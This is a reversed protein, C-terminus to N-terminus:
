HIILKQNIITQTNVGRASIIYTGPILRNSFIFEYIAGDIATNIQQKVLTLGSIDYVSLEILEDDFSNFQITTKTEAPNPYIILSPAAKKHKFNVAIIKSYVFSGDLDVQKLRYYSLGKIPNFDTLSYHLEESSNGAASTEELFDFVLDNGAREIEFHSSNIESSTTWNLLVEKKTKTAYFDLIEVPLPVILYDLQQFCRLNISTGAGGKFMGIVNANNQTFCNVSYGDANGGQFLFRGLAQDQIRCNVDFGDGSGGKYFSNNVIDTEEYCLVNSNYSDGGTYMSYFPTIGEEYCNVYINSGNAGMFMTNSITNNQEYCYFAIASSSGGYFMTAANQGPQHYCSLNSFNGDGGYFLDNHTAANELFCYSPQAAGAGGYYIRNGEASTQEHCALNSTYNGWGGSYMNYTTSTNEEYCNSPYFSGGGGYFMPSQSWLTSASIVIFLSIFLFHYLLRIM